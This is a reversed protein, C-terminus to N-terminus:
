NVESFRIIFVLSIAYLTLNPNLTITSFVKKLLFYHTPLITGKVNEEDDSRITIGGIALDM